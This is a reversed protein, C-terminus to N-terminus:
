YSGRYLPEGNVDIMAGSKSITFEMDDLVCPVEKGSVIKGDIHSNTIALRSNRDTGRFFSVQIGECDMRITAYDLNINSPSADLPGFMLGRSANFKSQLNASYLDINTNGGALTGMVSVDNGNFSSIYSIHEVKLDLSGTHSGIGVAKMVNANLDIACNVVSLSIDGTLTGIATGETGQMRIFYRGRRIDISAGKGAGICIGKTVGFIIEVTGDQDFILNGTKSEIGNGIGFAETDSISINLNGDGELTLTSSEPM